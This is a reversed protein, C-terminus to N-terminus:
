VRYDPMSLAQDREWINDNNNEDNDVVKRASTYYGATKTFQDHEQIWMSGVIVRFDLSVRTSCTTNEPTFHSCLAGYFRKIDGYKAEITHWNEQGPSSELVLSNTGYIKTLPVYFNVNAQSFGYSTDSHPGISFEGPRVCRVCPFAQYYIVRESPFIEAVHPLIVERVFIDFIEHFKRVKDQITLNILLPLKDSKHNTGQCKQQGKLVHFNELPQIDLTSELIERLPYKKIDYNFDMEMRFREFEASQLLNRVSKPIHSSEKALVRARNERCKEIDAEMTKLVDSSTYDIYETRQSVEALRTSLWKYQCTIVSFRSTPIIKFVNNFNSSSSSSSCSNNDFNCSYNYSENSM